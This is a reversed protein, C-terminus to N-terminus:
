LGILPDVGLWAQHLWFVFVAYLGLGLVLLVVDNAKSVPLGPIKRPARRKLSAHLVGAWVLFVGFLVVDALTGNVLLHATAWLKVALLQPHGVLRSVRGPFYPALFLVFVPVLFVPVVAYLWAPPTWLVTPDQRAVAYGYVILAFGVLSVLAYVGKWAPEHRAAMRERFSPAAMSISHPGFFLLMGLVLILM